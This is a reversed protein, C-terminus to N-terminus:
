ASKNPKTEKKSSKTEKLNVLASIDDTYEITSKKFLTNAIESIEATWLKKRGDICTFYSGLLTTWTTDVRYGVFVIGMKEDDLSLALQSNIRTTAETIVNQPRYNSDLKKFYLKYKSGIYMFIRGNPGFKVEAGFEDVLGGRIFGSVVTSQWNRIRYRAPYPTEEALKAFAARFVQDFRSKITEVAVMFESEIPITRQAYAVGNLIKSM